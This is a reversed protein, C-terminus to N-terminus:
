GPRERIFKAPVGAVISYPPIDKTVVSNAGIIAGKGVTVGKTIVVGAGIWVDDEVVVPEVKYGQQSIPVDRRTFGHDVDLIFVGSALMVNAGLEVEQMSTIICRENIVTNDGIVLCGNGAFMVADRIAVRDGLVVALTGPMKFGRGISGRTGAKEFIPKLLVYRLKAVYPSFRAISRYTKRALYRWM